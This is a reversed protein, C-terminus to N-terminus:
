HGMVRRGTLQTARVRVVVSRVGEPWPDPRAASSGAGGASPGSELEALGRVLVSWGSQTFDDVDDVEFAVAQGGVHQAISNYPSTRFRIGDADVVHNVPFVSPGEPTSFAIRGVPKSALLERCEGEDLTQFSGRLWGQTSAM